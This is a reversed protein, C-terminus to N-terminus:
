WISDTLSKSVDAPLTKTIPPLQIPIWFRCPDMNAPNNVVQALSSLYQGEWFLLTCVAWWYCRTLIRSQREPFTSAQIIPNHENGIHSVRLPSCRESTESWQETNQVTLSTIWILRLHGRVGPCIPSFLFLIYTNWHVFFTDSCMGQKLFSNEYFYFRM